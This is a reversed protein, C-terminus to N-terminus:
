KMKHQHVKAVQPERLQGRIYLIRERKMKSDEKSAVSSLDLQAKTEVASKNQVPMEEVKVSRTIESVRELLRPDNRM